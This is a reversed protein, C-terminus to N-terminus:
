VIQRERLGSNAEITEYATFGVQNTLHVYSSAADYFITEGHYEPHYNTQGRSNCYTGPLSCEYQDSYVM